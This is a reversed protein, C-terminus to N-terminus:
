LPTGNFSEFLLAASKIQAFVNDGVKLDLADVEDLLHLEDSGGIHEGNIFIQPVSTRGNSRKVMEPRLSAKELVNFGQYIVGKRDLLNLARHCYPCLPSYYIEVRANNSGETGQEVRATSAQHGAQFTLHAMWAILTLCATAQLLFHGNPGRGGMIWPTLLLATLLGGDVIKILPSNPEPRHWHMGETRSSRRRTRPKERTISHQQNM